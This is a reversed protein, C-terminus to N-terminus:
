EGRMLSSKMDKYAKELEETWGTEGYTGGRFEKEGSYAANQKNKYLKDECPISSIEEFVMQAIQLGPRLIFPNAGANYLGLSLIGEYTPNCHQDTVLIGGRTFRTRPRIHAVLNDPLKIEERLRVLVYQGPSLLYGESGIVKEEYMDSLAHSDSPDIAFGTSKLMMISDSMSVDYSAGQLQEESFPTILPNSDNNVYERIQRESLIM